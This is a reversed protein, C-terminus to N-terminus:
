DDKEKLNESVRKVMDRTDRAFARGKTSFTAYNGTPHEAFKGLDRVKTGLAKVDRKVTDPLTNSGQVVAQGDELHARLKSELSTFEPDRLTRSLRLADAEPILVVYEPGRQNTTAARSQIINRAEARIHKPVNAQLRALEFQALIALRAVVTRAAHREHVASQARERQLESETLLANLSSVPIGYTLGVSLGGGDSQAKSNEDLKGMAKRIESVAKEDAKMAVVALVKGETDLVPGGSWGPNVSADIQYFDHQKIRVVSALQGQNVANRLLIGDKASPNGILTVRDGRHFTYGEGLALGPSDESLELVCLDRSRDYCLMRTVSLPKRGQNGLEVKLEECFAGDVVHANTVVRKGEIAFGSGSGFPHEILAVCRLVDDSPAPLRNRDSEATSRRSPTSRDTPSGTPGPAATQALTATDRGAPPNVILNKQVLGSTWIVESRLFEVVSGDAGLAMVARRPMPWSSDGKLSEYLGKWLLIQKGDFHAEIEVEDNSLSWVRLKLTHVVNNTVTSARSTPNQPDATRRGDIISLGSFRGFFGSVEINAYSDKLPFLMAIAGKGEWRKFEITWEYRGLVITPMALLACHEARACRLVGEHMEWEGAQTHKDPSVNALLNIPSPVDGALSQAALVGLGVGVAVALLWHWEGRGRASQTM